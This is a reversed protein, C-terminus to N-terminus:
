EQNFGAKHWCNKITNGTINGWEKLIMNMADLYNIGKMATNYNYSGTAENGKIIEISNKDFDLIKETLM